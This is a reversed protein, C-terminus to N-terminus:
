CRLRSRNGVESELRKPESATGVKIQWCTDCDALWQSPRAPQPTTADAGGDAARDDTNITVRTLDCGSRLAEALLLDRLIPKLTADNAKALMEESVRWPRAM